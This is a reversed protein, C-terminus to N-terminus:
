IVLAMPGPRNRATANVSKTKILQAPWTTPCVHVSLEWHGLPLVQWLPNHVAGGGTEQVAPCDDQLPAQVFVPLSPLLQPEHPWTQLAPSVHELPEHWDAHATPSVSHPLEHTSVELSKDSQPAHPL